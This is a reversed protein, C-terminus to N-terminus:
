ARPAQKLGYLSKHLLCVHDPKTPDKFGPLQHMYVTEKLDGHLFTNKVDLQRLPWNKATAVDLVAHITGPKVVPSFRDDCDVGSQQSKGNALLRAKHRALKGGADFKHRYNWLSCVVKASKPRPVLSWTGMNILASYEDGMAPNWNPDKAAEIHSKPLPSVTTTHLCLCQHPKTIGLKSRTIMPHSPQPPAPPVNSPTSSPPLNPSTPTTSPPPYSPKIIPPLLIPISPPPLLTTESNSITSNVAMIVNFIDLRVKLPDAFMPQSLRSTIPPEPTWTGYANDTANQLTM